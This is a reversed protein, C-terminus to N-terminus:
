GRSAHVPQGTLVCAERTLYTTEEYVRVVRALLLRKATREAELQSPYCGYPQWMVPALKAKRNAFGQEVRYHTTIVGIM